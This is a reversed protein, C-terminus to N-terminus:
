LKVPATWGGELVAGIGNRKLLRKQNKLPFCDRRQAEVVEM